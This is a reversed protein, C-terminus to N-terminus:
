ECLRKKAVENSVHHLTSINLVKYFSNNLFELEEGHMMILEGKYKKRVYDLYDDNQDVGVYHCNFNAYRGTGCGVDLVSDGDDANVLEPVYRKLKQNNVTAIFIHM